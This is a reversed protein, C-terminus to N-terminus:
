ATYELVLRLWGAGDPQVGVVVAEREGQVCVATGHGPLVNGLDEAKITLSPPNAEMGLVDDHLAEFIGTLATGGVVASANALNAICARNIRQELAAFRAGTAM